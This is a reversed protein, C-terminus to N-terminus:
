KFQGSVPTVKVVNPIGDIYIYYNAGDKFQVLRHSAKAAPKFKYGDAQRWVNGAGTTFITRGDFETFDSTEAEGLVKMEEVQVHKSVGQVKAIFGSGDQYAQFKITASSGKIFPAKTDDVQKWGENNALVVMTGPGNWGSFASIITSPNDNSFASSSVSASLLLVAISLSKFFQNKKM